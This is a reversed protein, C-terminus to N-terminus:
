YITNLLTLRVIRDAVEDPLPYTRGTERSRPLIAKWQEETFWVFTRGPEPDEFTKWNASEPSLEQCDRYFKPRKLEGDPGPELPRNFGKLIISGPPRKPFAPDMARLDEVPVAGPARECEPLALWRELAKEPNCSGGGCGPRSDGGCLMRGQPTVGHFRGTGWGGQQTISKWWEGEADKPHGYLTTVVPVFRERILAM